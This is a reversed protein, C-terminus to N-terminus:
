IFEERKGGEFCDQPIGLNLRHHTSDPAMVQAFVKILILLKKATTYM